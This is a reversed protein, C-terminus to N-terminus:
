IDLEHLRNIALRARCRNWWRRFFDEKPRHWVAMRASKIADTIIPTVIDKMGSKIFWQFGSALHRASEFAYEGRPEIVLPRDLMHPLRQLNELYVMDRASFNGAIWKWVINVVENPEEGLRWDIGESSIWPTWLISDNQPNDAVLEWIPLAMEVATMACIIQAPVSLAALQQDLWKNWSRAARIKKEEELSSDALRLQPIELHELKGQRLHQYLYKM